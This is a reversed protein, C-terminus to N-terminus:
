VIVIHGYEDKVNTGADTILMCDSIKAFTFFASHEFKSSDALVYTENSHEAIRKKYMGDRTDYTAFDMTQSMAYTGIFSKSFHMKAIQNEVDDAIISNSAADAYGNLVYTKIGREMLRSIAPIANTVVTINEARIYDIMYYVTSSSDLFIFDGDKLLSAAVKAIKQKEEKHIFMRKDIQYATEYPKEISVAGGRFRKLSGEKEMASLDRRITAESIGLEEVFEEVTIRQREDLMRLIKKWRDYANMEIVKWDYQVKNETL